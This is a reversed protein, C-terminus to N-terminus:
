VVAIGIKVVWANPHPDGPLYRRWLDDSGVEVCSSFGARRTRASATEPGFSYAGYTFALRSGPGGARAMFQLSRDIAADDIYGIVGEWIFLAGAGRRFGRAELASTLAEEFDSAEFDFPVHAIRSPVKVGASALIARKRQLQGPTDIEYVSTRRRKIEPLRLGRADFGAGLIVVQDLGAVLGERVFDDIFRTRLRVGDRFFPLELFRRTADAAHAGAEGFTSAYPDDFLREAKPRRGEDARVVAISFATDAVTLEVRSSGPLPARARVRRLAQQHSEGTRAMRARTLSKRHSPM